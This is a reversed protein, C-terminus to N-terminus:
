PMDYCNCQWRDALWQLDSFDCSGNGDIDGALDNGMLGYDSVLVAFDALNIFLNDGALDARHCQIDTIVSATFTFAYDGPLGPAGSSSRFLQVHEKWPTNIWNVLYRVTFHSDHIDEFVDVPRIEGSTNLVLFDVWSGEGIRYQGVISCANSFINARSAVSVDGLVTGSEAVFSYQFVAGEGAKSTDTYYSAYITGTEEVFGADGSIMLNTDIGHQRVDHQYTFQPGSCIINQGPQDPIPDAMIIVNFFCCVALVFCFSRM